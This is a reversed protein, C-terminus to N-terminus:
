CNLKPFAPSQDTRNALYENGLVARYTPLLGEPSPHQDPDIRNPGHTCNPQPHLSYANFDSNM